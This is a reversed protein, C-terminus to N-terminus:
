KALENTALVLFMFNTGGGGLVYETQQWLFSWKDKMEPFDPRIIATGSVVGGPIYSYDPRNFGYAELVSNSGVGSAFSETNSGPHCGLMFQLSNYILDPKFVGPFGTVLFYQHFARSQISWGDGWINPTYQVGFPTEKTQEDVKEAYQKVAEDMDHRFSEDTISKYVRGVAWAARSMHELIYDQQGTIDDLYKQDQTTIYLEADAAVREAVMDKKSSIVYLKEAAQLCEASLEPRYDKLVRSASALGAIGIMEHRANDETFVWRDDKIGSQNVTRSGEPLNPNYDLNDTMAGADGTLGYQKGTSAIIGDYLRGLGRYGGLVTLVGHEVQQIADPIGDPDNITVLRNMQDVRTVDLNINFLEYMLALRWTTGAQSEVRLDFDGADHWGGRDLDPVHQPHVYHTFSEPGQSYGDFHVHNLPAMLADDLHCWNHWVRSGQEVRVHCMQAPLFYELTPQWVNREYVDKAIKFLNSTVEGYKVQYMGPEKISTFDCVAYNYRLFKGWLVPLESFVTSDSGDAKVQVINLKEVRDTRKDMEIVARKPEEPLYGVQSIHIVPNYRYNKVPIIEVEWEVANATVNPPVASRVIFWGAKSQMRGDTLQLDGGRVSRITLRQTETEPAVTLVKGEAFPVIEDNGIPGYSDTPFIGTEGDMNWSKGFLIAPFLELRFWANGVYQEPVPQDLNLTFYAKRGETRVQVTYTFPIEPLSLQREITGAVSDIKKEGVEPRGSLHLDGNAAVRQGNQIITLGSQHGSPYYDDYVMISVGPMDFYGQNNITLTDSKDVQKCAPFILVFFLFSIGSQIFYSFSKKM